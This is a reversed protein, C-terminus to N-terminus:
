LYIMQIQNTVGHECVNHFGHKFSHFPM